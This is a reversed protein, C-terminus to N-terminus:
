KSEKPDTTMVVILTVLFGLFLWHGVAEKWTKM